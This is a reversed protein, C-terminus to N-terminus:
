DGFMKGEKPEGAAMPTSRKGVKTKHEARGTGGGLHVEKQQPCVMTAKPRGRKDTAHVFEVRAGRGGISEIVYVDREGFFLLAGDGKFSGTQVDTAIFGHRKLVQRVVGTGRGTSLERGSGQQEGASPESRPGRPGM